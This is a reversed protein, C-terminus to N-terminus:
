SQARSDSTVVPGAARWSRVEIVGPARRSAREIVRSDSMADRDARHALIPVELVTRRASLRM